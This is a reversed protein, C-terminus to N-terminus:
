RNVPISTNKHLTCQQFTQLQKQQLVCHITLQICYSRFLPDTDPGGVPLSRPRTGTCQVVYAVNGYVCIYLANSM